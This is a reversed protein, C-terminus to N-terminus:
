IGHRKKITEWTVRTKGREARLRKRVEELDVQDELEELLELDAFPIVAFQPRGHRQVVIREGDHAVRETTQGLKKQFETADVVTM